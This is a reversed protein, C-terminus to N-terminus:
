LNMQVFQIAADYSVPKSFIYGQIFDCGKEKLINLQKEVEVGEAIVECGLAHSMSCIAGVIEGDEIDDVLSKDIKLLDIPLKSLYSLSSYGTGFDDMAIKVGMRKLKNVVNLADNTTDMLCYETIEIELNAPKFGTDDLAKELVAIFNRSLMQKASINISVVIDRDMALLPAFDATVKKIVYEGVDIILDTKEAVPIFEGPYLPEDDDDYSAMRILSEFGRLKKTNAEFQPQYVMYFKSNDLADKIRTEIYQGRVIDAEFEDYYMTYLNKGVESAKVAAINAKRLLDDNKGNIPYESIGASVSLFTSISDNDEATEKVVEVYKYVLSEIDKCKSKKIVIAFEAGGFRGIMANKNDINKWKDVIDKLVEDGKEYGVTENIIKYRDFNIFIVYFPSKHSSMHEIYQIIYKRNSVGTLDDTFAGKRENEIRERLFYVAIMCVIYYLLGPLSVLNRSVIVPILAVLFAFGTVVLALIGGLGYEVAVMLLAILFQIATIIGTFAVGQIPSSEPNRGIYSVYFTLIVCVIAMIVVITKRNTNGYNYQAKM